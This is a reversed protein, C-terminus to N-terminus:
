TILLHRFMVTCAAEPDLLTFLQYLAWEVCRIRHRQNQQGNKTSFTDSRIDPWDERLDLNLLRLNTIFLTVNSPAPYRDRLETNESTATVHLNSHARQNRTVISSTRTLSTSMTRHTIGYIVKAENHSKYTPQNSFYFLCNFLFTEFPKSTYM